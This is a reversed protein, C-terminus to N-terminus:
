YAETIYGNNIAVASRVMDEIISYESDDPQPAGVDFCKQSVAAFYIEVCNLGCEPEWPESFFQKITALPQSTAQTPLWIDSVVSLSKMDEGDVVVM